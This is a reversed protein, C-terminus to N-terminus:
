LYEDHRKIGPLEYCFKELCIDQLKPRVAKQKLNNERWNM